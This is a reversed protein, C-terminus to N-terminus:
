PAKKHASVTYVLQTDKQNNASTDYCQTKGKESVGEYSIKPKNRINDSEPSDQRFVYIFPLLCIQLKKFDSRGPTHKDSFLILLILILLMFIIAAWLTMLSQSYWLAFSFYFYAARMASPFKKFFSLCFATM